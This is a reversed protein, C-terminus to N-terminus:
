LVAYVVFSYRLMWNCMGARSEVGFDIPYGRGTLIRTYFNPDLKGYEVFNPTVFWYTQHDAPNATM